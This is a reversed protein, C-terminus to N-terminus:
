LSATDTDDEDAPSPENSAARLCADLWEFYHLADPELDHMEENTM